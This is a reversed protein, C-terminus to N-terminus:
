PFGAALIVTKKEHAIESHHDYLIISHADRRFSKPLFDQITVGKNPPLPLPFKPPKDDTGRGIRPRRKESVM